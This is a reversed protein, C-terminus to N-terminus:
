YGGSSSGHHEDELKRGAPTVVYWEAGFAKSGQGETQGPHHDDDYHYLPHGGYTVQTTGDKRKISAIKAAAIGSGATAKGSTLLPAWEKACAGTCASRGGKDKEFLYLTLGKGDVVIRGLGVKRVQLKAKATPGPARRTQATVPAAVYGSDYPTGRYREM